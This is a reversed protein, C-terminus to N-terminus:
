VHLLNKVEAREGISMAMYGRSSTLSVWGGLKRHIDEDIGLQRIYNSGGVRLAHGTRLKASKPSLGVVTVLAFQMAQVFQKHGVPNVKSPQRIGRRM